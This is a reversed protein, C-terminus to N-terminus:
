AVCRRRSHPATGRPTGPPAGGASTAGQRAHAATACSLTQMAGRAISFRTAAWALDRACAARRRRGWTVDSWFAGRRARAACGGGGFPTVARARPSGRRSTVVQTPNSLCTRASCRSAASNMLYTTTTTRCHLGRRRRRAGAGHPHRKQRGAGSAARCGGVRGRATGGRLTTHARRLRHHRTTIIFCFPPALPSFADTDASQLPTHYTTDARSSYGHKM